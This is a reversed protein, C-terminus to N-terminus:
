VLKKSSSERVGFVFESMYNPHSFNWQIANKNIVGNYTHDFLEVIEDIDDTSLTTWELGEPLPNSLRNTFDKFPGIHTVEQGRWLIPLEAWRIVAPISLHTVSQLALKSKSASYVQYVLDVHIQWEIIVSGIVIWSITCSDPKKTIEMEIFFRHKHLDGITMQNPDKHLVERMITHDLKPRVRVPFYPAAESLTMGFFTKKFNEISEQAAPIMSAAAMAELIRTDLFNWYPSDALSTCLNDFSQAGKLIPIIDHSKLAMYPSRATEFAARQLTSFNANTIGTTVAASLRTFATQINENISFSVPIPPPSQLPQQSGEQTPPPENLMEEIKSAVDFLEVGPSRLADILQNWTAYPQKQLWLYLMVGCCENVNGGKDTQIEDLKSEDEPELLELGVDYWNKAFLSKVNKLYKRAPRGSREQPITRSM